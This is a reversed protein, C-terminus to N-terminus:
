NVGREFRTSKNYFNGNVTFACGNASNPNGGADTCSVVMSRTNVYGVKQTLGRGIIYEAKHGGDRSTSIKIYPSHATIEWYGM